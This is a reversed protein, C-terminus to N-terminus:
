VPLQSSRGATKQGQRLMLAGAVMFAISPLWVAITNLMSDRLAENLIAMTFVYAISVVLSVAVASGFRRVRPALGLSFLALPLTAFCLAWLLRSARVAAADTRQSLRSLGLENMGPDLNIVAGGLQAVMVERFRQNAAPLGWEMIIWVGFTSLAAIGLVAVITRVGSRRGRLACITGLSIGAPISLPLAQPILTSALLMREALTGRWRFEILPPLTIALTLLCFAVLSFAFMRMASSGSRSQPPHTMQVICHLGLAKWFALYGRCLALRRKWGHTAAGDAVESQLDALIPDVLRELTKPSCVAAAMRRLLQGPMTM